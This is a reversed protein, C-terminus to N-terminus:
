KNIDQKAELRDILAKISQKQADTPAAAQARKAVQQFIEIAEAGQKQSQLRRGYSYLQPATAIEVAHNWTAKAEDPRNLAKLIDAKTSLNDFREENQISADAWRLAEDLNIKRTLCFQAGEDLAQWTFQGRGKLQARINQLTQEADKISVTFPVGLKEWKLTVATSDPKLDEFEFELAEKLEALPRPKVNVRLADEDQNYSYSGWATNTKSFIVTWSDPNPIMHLGYIGKALPQGEVSVPDSFEITTNENAGARWVKGYPVLGGWIKRGNVLPRHYKVTIDTLAIRQKVEAAQSVDPLNLDNQASVTGGLGLIALCIAFSNRTCTKM